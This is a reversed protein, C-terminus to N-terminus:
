IGVLIGILVSRSDFKLKQDNYSSVEEFSQGIELLGQIMPIIQFEIGVNLAYGRIKSEVDPLQDYTVTLDSSILYRGRVYPTIIPFLSVSAKVDLAIQNIKADVPNGFDAKDLAIDSYSAGFSIPILPLPSVHLGLSIERGTTNLGSDNSHYWRKGYLAEANFFSYATSASLSLTIALLSLWKKM